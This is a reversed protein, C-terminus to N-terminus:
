FARALKAPKPGKKQKTKKPGVFFIFAGSAPSIFKM